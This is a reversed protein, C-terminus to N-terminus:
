GVSRARTADFAATIDAAAAHLRSAILRADAMRIRSSPGSVSLAATFPLGEIPVAICRVGLEQEGDDIAYKNKRVHALDALLSEPATLTHETISPMGARQLIALVQEDPLTSLLAKGVGTSHLPVVRGVETFMRVFNPSPAQAIYVSADGELMAMNTTEGCSAVVQALHPLAWSGLTRSASEGLRIMRPGLTYRKSSEQRVYGDSILSRLLRHITPMPLGTLRTLESLSRSGGDDALHELLDFVRDVLQIREGMRGGDEAM